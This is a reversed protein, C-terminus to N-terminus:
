DNLEGLVEEKSYAFPTLEEFTIFRADNDEFLKFMERSKYLM